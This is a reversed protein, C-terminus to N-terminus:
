PLGACSLTITWGSLQAPFIGSNSISHLTWTGTGEIGFLSDLPEASPNTTSFRMVPITGASGNMWLHVPDQSPDPGILFVNIWNQWAEQWIVDIVIDTVVPCEDIELESFYGETGVPIPKAVPYSKSASVIGVPAGSFNLTYGASLDSLATVEILYDSAQQRPATLTFTGAGTAELSENSDFRYSRLRIEETNNVLVEIEFDIDIQSRFLWYEKQGEELNLARGRTESFAGSVQFSTIPALIEFDFDPGVLPTSGQNLLELTYEGSGPILAFFEQDSPLPSVERVLDGDPNRLRLTPDEGQLYAGQLRLIDFTEATFTFEQAEEPALATLPQYEFQVHIGGSISDRARNAILYTGPASLIFEFNQTVGTSAFNFLREEELSYVSVDARGSGVQSSGQFRAAEPIRVVVFRWDGRVLGEAPVSTEFASDTFGGEFLPPSDVLLNSFFGEIPLNAQNLHELTYTGEEPVYFFGGRIDNIGLSTPRNDASLGTGTWLIEGNKVIRADMASGASNRHRIRLIEGEQAHIEQPFSGGPLITTTGEAKVQYGTIPGTFERADFLLYLSSPFFGPELTVLEDLSLSYSQIFETPSAWLEVRPLHISSGLIGTLLLTPNDQPLDIKFFNSSLTALNGSLNEELHEWPLAEPREIVEVVGVYSWSPDGFPGGSATSLSNEVILDYNGDAPLAFIRSPASAYGPLVRREWLGLTQRLRFGLSPAGRPYITVKIWKGAEGQLSFVQFLNSQNSMTGTFLVQDGPNEGLTITPNSDSADIEALNALEDAFSVLPVCRNGDATTGDGCQVSSADVCKQQSVDFITNPACAQQAPVCRTEELATGPGCVEDRLRCRGEALVTGLGCTKGEAVICLGDAELTGPGCEVRTTSICADSDLDYVTQAGCFVEPLSCRGSPTYVEGDPCDFESLVCLGNRLVTGDGCRLERQDNVTSGPTCSILLLLPVVILPGLRTFHRSISQM